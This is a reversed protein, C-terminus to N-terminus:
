NIIGGKEYKKLESKMMDLLRKREPKFDTKDLLGDKIDQRLEKIQDNYFNRIKDKELAKQKQTLKGKRKKKEVAEKQKKKKEKTEKKTIEKSTEIQEKTATDKSIIKGEDTVITRETMEVYDLMNEEPIGAEETGWFAFQKDKSDIWIPVGGLPNGSKNGFENRLKEVFDQLPSNDYNSIDGKIAIEHEGSKLVIPIDPFLRNVELIPNPQGNYRNENGLDYWEISTDFYKRPINEAKIRFTKEKAEKPEKTKSVGQVKKLTIRSPAVTKLSPYLDASVSKRVDAINYEIGKKKYDKVVLSVIRNYRKLPTINRKKSARKKTPKRNKQKGM